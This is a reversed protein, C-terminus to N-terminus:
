LLLQLIGKEILYCILNKIFFLLYEISSGSNRRCMFNIFCKNFHNAIDVPKFISRRDRYLFAHRKEKQGNLGNIIEIVKEVNKQMKLRRKM